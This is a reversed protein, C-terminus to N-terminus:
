RGLKVGLILGRHTNNAFDILAIKLHAWLTVCIRWKEFM